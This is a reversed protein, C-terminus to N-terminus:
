DGEAVGDVAADREREGAEVVALAHRDHGRGRVLDGRRDVVAHRHDELAGVLLGRPQAAVDAQVGRLLEQARERGLADRDSGGVRVDVLGPHLSWFEYDGWLIESKSTPGRTSATPASSAAPM